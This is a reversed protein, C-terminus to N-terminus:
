FNGPLTNDQANALTDAAAKIDDAATAPGAAM